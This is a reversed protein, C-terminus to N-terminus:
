NPEIESYVHNRIKFYGMKKPVAYFIREMQFCSTLILMIHLIKFVNGFPLIATWTNGDENCKIFPTDPQYFFLSVLITGAEIVILHEILLWRGTQARLLNKVPFTSSKLVDSKIEHLKLQESMLHAHRESMARNHSELLESRERNQCFQYKHLILAELYILLHSYMLVQFTIPYIMDQTCHNYKFYPIGIISFGMIFICHCNLITSIAWNSKKSV